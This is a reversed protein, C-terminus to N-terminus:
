KKAKLDNFDCQNLESLYHKGTRQLASTTFSLWDNKLTPVVAVEAVRALVVSSVDNKQLQIQEQSGTKLLYRHNAGQKTSRQLYSARTKIHGAIKAWSLHSLLQM